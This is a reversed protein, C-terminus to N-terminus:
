AAIAAAVMSELWSAFRRSPQTTTLGARHAFVAHPREAKVTWVDARNVAGEGRSGKESRHTCNAGLPSLPDLTLPLSFRFASQSPIEHCTM